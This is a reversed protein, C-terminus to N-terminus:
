RRGPKRGNQKRGDNAIYKQLAAAIKLVESFDYEKKRGFNPIVSRYFDESREIGTMSKLKVPLDKGKIRSKGDDTAVWENIGIEPNILKVRGLIDAPTPAKVGDRKLQAIATALVFSGHGYLQGVAAIGAVRKWRTFTRYDIATAAVFEMFRKLVAGDWYESSRADYRQRLQQLQRLAADDNVVQTSASRRDNKGSFIDNVVDRFDLASLM